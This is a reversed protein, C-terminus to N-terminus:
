FVTLLCKLHTETLLSRDVLRYASADTQGCLWLLKQCCTLRLTAFPPILPLNSTFVEQEEGLVFPVATGVPGVCKIKVPGPSFGCLGQEIMPQIVSAEPFSQGLLNIFVNCDIFQILNRIDGFDWKYIKFHTSHNSNIVIQNRTIVTLM